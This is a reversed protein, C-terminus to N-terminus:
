KWPVQGKKRLKKEVDFPDALNSRAEKTKLM